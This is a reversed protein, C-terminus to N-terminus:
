PAPPKEGFEDDRPLGLADLRRLISLIEGHRALLRNELLVIDSKVEQQDRRM